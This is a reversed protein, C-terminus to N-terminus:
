VRRIYVCKTTVVLLQNLNLYVSIFLITNEDRQVATASLGREEPCYVNVSLNAYELIFQM